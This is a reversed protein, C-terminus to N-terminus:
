PITDLAYPQHTPSYIAGRMSVPLKSGTRGKTVGISDCLPVLLRLHHATRGHAGVYIGRAGLVRVPPRRLPHPCEARLLRFRERLVKGRSRPGDAEPGAMAPRLWKTDEKVTLPKADGDEFLRVFTDNKKDERTPSAKLVADKPVFADDDDHKFPPLRWFM